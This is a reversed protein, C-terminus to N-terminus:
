QIKQYSVFLHVKPSCLPSREFVNFFRVLRLSKFSLRHISLSWLEQKMWPRDMLLICLHNEPLMKFWNGQSTESATVIVEEFVNWLNEESVPQIWHTTIGRTLIFVNNCLPDDQLLKHNKLPTRAKQFPQTICIDDWVRRTIPVQSIALHSLFVTLRQGQSRLTLCVLCGPLVM